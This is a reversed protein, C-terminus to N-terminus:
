TFDIFSNISLRGTLPNPDPKFHRAISGSHLSNRRYVLMRNFVGEQSDIREYLATDGNIYEAPPMNPGGNESELSKFYTIRRSEDIYEYGTKRHRYFATGGMDEKFLYHISALGNVDISDFHPIRQLLTLQEPPTTVISYHCMSFSCSKGRLSFFEQLLDQLEGILFQGYEPGAEARIGPFFGRSATFTSQSAREIFMDPDAVLNDIVLLPSEERGFYLQKISIDPHLRINM